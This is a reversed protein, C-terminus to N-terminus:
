QSLPKAKLVCLSKKKCYALIREKSKKSSALVLVVGGGGAGCVKFSEGGQEMVGARLEEIEFSSYNRLRKRILYEKNLLPSLSDWKQNLSLEAMQSSIESLEALTQFVDRDGQLFAKYIEWNNLVSEHSIGTDILVMKELFFSEWSHVLTSHFGKLDYLIVHFGPSLAPIYDQTGTPFNLAQAEINAALHVKEKFKMKEEKKLWSSFAKMLSICLSSSGGMGGGIPSESFTKLSFGKSPNWFKLHPCILSLAKKEANGEEIVKCSAVREYFSKLQLFTRKYQFNSIELDISFDDQEEKEEIEVHTYLDVSFNLVFPKEFFLYLPWIDLTGGSLDVRLPSRSSVRKKM